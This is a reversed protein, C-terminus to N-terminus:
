RGPYLSDALLPEEAAGITLLLLRMAAEDASAALERLDVRATDEASPGHDSPM